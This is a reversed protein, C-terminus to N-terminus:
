PGIPQPAQGGREPKGKWGAVSSLIILSPRFVAIAAASTL